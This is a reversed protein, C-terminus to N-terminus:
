WVDSVKLSKAQPPGFTLRKNLNPGSYITVGEKKLLNCIESFFGGNAGTYHDEHLLLTEM